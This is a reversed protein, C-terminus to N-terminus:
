ALAPMRDRLVGGRQLLEIGRVEIGVLVADAVLRHGPVELQSMRRIIGSGDSPRYLLWEAVLMAQGDRADLDLVRVKVGYEPAHRVDWPFFRIDESHLLHSLNIGMVRTIGYDLPEAWLEEGAVQLQNGDRTYVMANRNLFEPIDIPGIGVTPTQGGPSPSVAATLRYFNSQPSSGCATLWLAICLSATIHKLTSTM